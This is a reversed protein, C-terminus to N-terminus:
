FDANFKKWDTKYSVKDSLYINWSELEEAIKLAKGSKHEMILIGNSDQHFIYPSSLDRRQKRL